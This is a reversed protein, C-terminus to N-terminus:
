ISSFFITNSNHLYSTILIKYRTISSKVNETYFKVHLIHFVVFTNIDRITGQVKLNLFYKM